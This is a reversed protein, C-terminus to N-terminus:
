IYHIKHPEVFTRELAYEQLKKNKLFSKVYVKNELPRSYGFTTSFIGCKSDGIGFTFCYDYWYRLTCVDKDM